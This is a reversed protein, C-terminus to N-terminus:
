SSAESLRWADGARPVGVSKPARLGLDHRRRWRLCRERRPLRTGSGPTPESQSTVEPEDGLARAVSKLLEQKDYRYRGLLEFAQYESLLALSRPLEDSRPMRAGETLVPIVSVGRRLATELEHRLVDDEDALRRNLEALWDRGIVALVLDSSGVARDIAERWPRGPAIDDVDMFVQDDGYRGALWERLHSATDYMDDRRYNIFIRTV